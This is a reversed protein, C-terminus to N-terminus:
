ADAVTNVQQSAVNVQRAQGVTVAPSPGQRLEKIAKLNRVMMRNARDLLPLLVEGLKKLRDEVALGEIPGHRRRLTVAPGSQGFLEHDILLALNGIWGQVRLANYYALLALDVLM